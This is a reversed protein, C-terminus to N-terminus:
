QTARRVRVTFRAIAANGSKDAASCSVTTRGLMFRSGSRPACAVPLSGDVDDRATVTFRVRVSRARRPARVTKATAGTITPAVLDFTQVAPVVVTGTWTDRGRCGTQTPTCSSHQVTGSGSAGAFVGTGGTVTFARPDTPSQGGTPALCTPIEALAADIDGKGAISLRVPTAAARVTLLPCGVPELDIVYLYSYSVNGLGAVVGTGSRAICEDPIAPPCATGRSEFAFVASLPLTATATTTAAGGSATLVGMLVTVVPVIALSHAKRRNSSAGRM